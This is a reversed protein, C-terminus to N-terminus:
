HSEVDSHELDLMPKLGGLLAANALAHSATPSTFLLFV